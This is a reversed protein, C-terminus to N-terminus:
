FSKVEYLTKKQPFTAHLGVSLSQYWEAAWGELDPDTRLM